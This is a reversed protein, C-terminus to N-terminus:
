RQTKKREAAARLAEDPHRRRAQRTIRTLRTGFCFVEVRRTSRATGHAFQLLARSYDAMSGALDHRVGLASRNGARVPAVSDSQPYESIVKLLAASAERFKGAGYYANGVRIAPFFIPM